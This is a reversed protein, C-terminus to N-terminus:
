RRLETPGDEDPIPLDWIEARYGGNGRRADTTSPRRLVTRDDDADPDAHADGSESPTGDPTIVDWLRRPQPEPRNPVDNGRDRFFVVLGATISALLALALAILTGTRNTGGGPDAAEPAPTPSPSPPPNPVGTPAAALETPIPVRLVPSSPGETGVLLADDGLSLTMSEGQRQFPLPARAVPAYLEPELIEVSLYTRLAYRGSPLVTGDTVFAPADAVRTLQNASGESLDRPARFVAGTSAKTVIHIRGNEDVLVAEADQPEEPYVFDYATFNDGRQQDPAPSDFVYIRVSERSGSNDGIDAVYLRGDAYALAEVDIPEADFELTGVTRGGPGIAYVTGSGGSDNATWFVTNDTDRALGSSETVRPDGITFALEAGAAPTPEDAAAPAIVAAILVMAVLALLVGSVILRRIRPNV